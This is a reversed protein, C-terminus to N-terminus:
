LFSDFDPVENSTSIKLINAINKDTIQSRQKSKNYKLLSFASECRYTSGFMVMLRQAWNKLNRFRNKDLLNFFNPLTQSEFQEQINDCAQLEILELQLEPRLQYADVTFLNSLAVFDADLQKFDAFRKSFDDILRHIVNQYKARQDDSLLESRQHLNPFNEFNNTTTEAHWIVLNKTFDKLSKYMDHIFLNPGQLLKNLLNLHNLIDVTFELDDVFEKQNWEPFSDIEFEALFQGIHDKLEYVRSCVEGISLWRVACHYPIDVHDADLEELFKRLRRYKLPSKRLSKVLRTVINTVHTLGLTHKCLQEQHILCHLFTLPFRRPGVKRAFHAIFGNVSGVMSPCGDTTVSVLKGLDLKLESSAAEVENFIIQGTSRDHLHRVAALEEFIAFNEDIGRIFILLQATSSVDTSEDVALSLFKAHHIKNVLNDSLLGAIQDVRRSITQRSLPIKKIAEAAESMDLANLMEIACNKVFDGDVFPKSKKAIQYAVRCSAIEVNHLPINKKKLQHKADITRKQILWLEKKQADTFGEVIQKHFSEFHLKMRFKGTTNHRKECFLCIVDSGDIAFFFQEM